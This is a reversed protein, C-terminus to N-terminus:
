RTVGSGEGRERGRVRAPPPPALPSLYQMGSASLARLAGSGSGGCALASSARAPTCGVQHGPWSGTSRCPGSHHGGRAAGRGHTGRRRHCRRRRHRRGRRGRGRRQPALASCVQSESPIFGWGVGWGRGGGARGGPGPVRIWSGLGPDRIRIKRPRPCCFVTCVQDAMLCDTCESLTKTAPMYFIHASALTSYLDLFFPACQVVPKFYITCM